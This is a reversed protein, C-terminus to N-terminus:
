LLSWFSLIQVSTNNCKDEALSTAVVRKIFTNSMSDNIWPIAEYILIATTM